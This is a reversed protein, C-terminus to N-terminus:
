SHHTRWTTSEAQFYTRSPCVPIISVSLLSATHLMGVARTIIDLSHKPVKLWANFAAILQSRIGKGPNGFMYDFPSLIIKEKHSSWGVDKQSIFGDGITPPPTRSAESPHVDLRPEYYEGKLEQKIHDKQAVKAHSNSKYMADRAPSTAWIPLSGRADPNSM